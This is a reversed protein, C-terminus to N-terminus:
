SYTGTATRSRDSLRLRPSDHPCRGAAGTHRHHGGEAQGAEPQGVDELVQGQHRIRRWRAWTSAAVPWWYRGETRLATPNRAATATAM